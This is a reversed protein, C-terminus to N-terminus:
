KKRIDIGCGLPYRLGCDDPAANKQQGASLNAADDAERGRIERAEGEEEAAGEEFGVRWRPPHLLGPCGNVTRGARRRYGSDREASSGTGLASGTAAPRAEPGEKVSAKSKQGGRGSLM